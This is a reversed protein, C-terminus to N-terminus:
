EESIKVFNFDAVEGLPKAIWVGKFGNNILKGQLSGYTGSSLSSLSYPLILRTTEPDFDGLDFTVISFGGTAQMLDKFNNLDPLKLNNLEPFRMSGSLKPVVTVITSDQGQSQRVTEYEITMAVQVNYTRGTSRMTITGAYTGSAPTLDKLAAEFNAENQTQISQRHSQTQSCGVAAFISCLFVILFRFSKKDVANKNMQIFEGSERRM